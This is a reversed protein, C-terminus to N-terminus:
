LLPDYKLPPAAEVWTTYFSSHLLCKVLVEGPHIDPDPWNDEVVCLDSVKGCTPCYARVMDGRQFPCNSPPPAAPDGAYGGAVDDLADDSLEFKKNDEM